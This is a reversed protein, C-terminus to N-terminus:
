TEFSKSIQEQVLPTHGTFRCYNSATKLSLDDHVIGIDSLFCLPTEHIRGLEDVYQTPLIHAV